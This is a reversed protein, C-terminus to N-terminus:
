FRIKEELSNITLQKEEHFIYIIKNNYNKEGEFIDIQRWLRAVHKSM